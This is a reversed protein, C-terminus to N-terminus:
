GLINDYREDGEDSRNKIHLMMNRFHKGVANIGEGDEGSSSGLHERILAILGTLYREAIAPHNHEFYFLYEELINTFLSLHSSSDQSTSSSHSVCVDAIKLARQLCELVRKPNSYGNTKEGDEEEEEEEDSEEFSVDDRFFLHACKMVM